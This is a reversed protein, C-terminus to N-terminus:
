DAELAKPQIVFVMAYWQALEQRAQSDSLRLLRYAERIRRKVKNRLCASKCVKKAVVFGVLPLATSQM